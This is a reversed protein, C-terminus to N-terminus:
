IIATPCLNSGVSTPASSPRRRSKQIAGIWHNQVLPCALRGSTPEKETSLHLGFMSPLATADRAATEMTTSWWAEQMPTDRRFGNCTTNALCCRTTRTEWGMLPRTALVTCCTAKLAKPEETTTNHDLIWVENFRRSSVAIQDLDANYNVANAHMWDGSNAGGPGGGGGVAAHNVDLLEPHDSPEGFHDLTADTNQVLHDWAHWEWVVEGGAPLTPQIETISEPWMLQPNVRGAAAAEQASRSEWALVLVHGNPMWAVDHHHHMSDNAFDLSWVLDGEWSRQELRGGM